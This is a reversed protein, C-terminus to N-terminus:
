LISQIETIYGHGYDLGTMPYTYFQIHVKNYFWCMWIFVSNM